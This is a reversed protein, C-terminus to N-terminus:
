FVDDAENHEYAIKPKDKLPFIGQWNSMISQELILIKEADDNAMTNLKSIILSLAKETLPKKITKRM